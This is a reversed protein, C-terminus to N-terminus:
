VREVTRVVSETFAKWSFRKARALGKGRPPIHLLADTIARIDHPDVLTGTDGVVEPYSGIDSAIVPTGCQMAELAPLGFGEIFSVSVLAEAGRYYDALLRDPVYGLIRVRDSLGLENVTKQIKTDMWFDSGILLFDHPTKTHKLFGSFARIMGPVNKGPKLSGVFLFYPHTGKYVPGRQSFVDDVGLYSVSVRRKDVGYAKCIEKRSAESITIIHDSRNALDATRHSLADSSGPYFEPHSLFGVDYIVGIKRVDCLIKPLPPIAQSLGVYVEIRNKLIDATQWIRSYGARPLQVFRVHPNNADQKGAEGGGFGYIRYYDKVSLRSLEEAFHSTVRWVGVKLRDDSVSLAGGDVGVRM